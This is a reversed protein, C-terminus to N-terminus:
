KSSTSVKRKLPDFILDDVVGRKWCAPFRLATQTKLPYRITQKIGNATTNIKKGSCDYEAPRWRVVADEFWYAVSKYSQPTRATNGVPLMALLM